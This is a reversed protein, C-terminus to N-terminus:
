FIWSRLTLEHDLTLANYKNKELNKNNMTKIKEIMSIKGLFFYILKNSM